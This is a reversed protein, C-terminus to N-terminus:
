LKVQWENRDSEEWDSRFETVYLKPPFDFRNAPRKMERRTKNSFVSFINLLKEKMPEYKKKENQDAELRLM